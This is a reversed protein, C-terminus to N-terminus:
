EFAGALRVARAPKGGITKPIRLLKPSSSVLLLAGVTEHEAYRTIQSMVRHPAGRVKVEMAVRLDPFWFDLRSKKDLPHERVFTLGASRLIDELLVYMRHEDHAMYSFRGLAEAIPKMGNEVIAEGYAALAAEWTPGVGHHWPLRTLPWGPPGVIYRKERFRAGRDDLYAAPGLVRQMAKRGADDPPPLLDTM